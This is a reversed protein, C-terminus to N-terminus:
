FRKVQFIEFVIRYIYSGKPNNVNIILLDFVREFNHFLELRDSVCDQIPAANNLYSFLPFHKNSINFKIM